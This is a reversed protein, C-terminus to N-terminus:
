EKGGFQILVTGVVLLGVREMFSLFGNGKIFDYSAVIIFLGGSISIWRTFFNM